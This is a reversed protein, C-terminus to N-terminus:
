EYHTMCVNDPHLWVLPIRIWEATHTLIAEDVAATRQIVLVTNGGSQHDDFEQLAVSHFQVAINNKKRLGTLFTRWLNADIEHDFMM